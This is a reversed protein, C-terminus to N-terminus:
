EVVVQWRHLAAAVSSMAVALNFVLVLIRWNWWYLGVLLRWWSDFSYRQVLLLVLCIIFFPLTDRRTSRHIAFEPPALLPWISRTCSFSPLRVQASSHWAWAWAWPSRADALDLVAPTARYFVFSAFISGFSLASFDAVLSM